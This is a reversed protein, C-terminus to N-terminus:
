KKKMESALYMTYLQPSSSAGVGWQNNLLLQKTNPNCKNYLYEDYDSVICDKVNPIISISKEDINLDKVDKYIDQSQSHMTWLSVGRNSWTSVFVDCDFKEILRNTYEIVKPHDFTRMQGCLLLAVRM